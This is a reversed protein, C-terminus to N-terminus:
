AVFKAEMGCSQPLPDSIRGPAHMRHSSRKGCSSWREPLAQYTVTGIAVAAFVALLVVAWRRMGLGNHM